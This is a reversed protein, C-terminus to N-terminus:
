NPSDFRRSLMSRSWSAQGGTHSPTPKASKAAPAPVAPPSAAATNDETTPGALAMRGEPPASGLPAAVVPGAPPTPTATSSTTSWGTIVPAPRDAPLPAAAHPLQAVTAPALGMKSAKALIANPLCRGDESLGQGAPCSKGCVRDQQGQVLTYLIADPEEVPLTANIRDTFAKMARRTLPTWAGNIEAEYCGVRRLEKQLERTLTDRDKPIVVRQPASPAPEGPHQVVTVVVPASFVPASSAPGAVTPRSVAVPRFAPRPEPAVIAPAALHAREEKIIAKAADTRQGTPEQDGLDVQPLAYAAVALGSLILILGNAKSM